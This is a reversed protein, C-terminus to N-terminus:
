REWAEETSLIDDLQKANAYSMARADIQCGTQREPLNAEVMSEKWIWTGVSAQVRQIAASLGSATGQKSAFLTSQLWGQSLKLQYPACEYQRPKTIPILRRISVRLMADGNRPVLEIAKVLGSFRWIFVCGVVLFGAMGVPYGVGIIWSQLKSLGPRSSVGDYIDSRVFAACAILSGGALWSAALLGIQSPAQYLTTKGQDLLQNALHQKRRHLPSLGQQQVTHPARAPLKIQRVPTRTIGSANGIPLRATDSAYRATHRLWLGPSAYRLGGQFHHHKFMVLRLARGALEVGRRRISSLHRYM